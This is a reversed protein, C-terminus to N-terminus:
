GSIPKCGFLITPFTVAPATAYSPVRSGRSLYRLRARGGTEREERRGKGGRM